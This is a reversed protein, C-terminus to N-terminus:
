LLYVKIRSSKSIPEQIVCTFDEENYLVYKDAMIPVSMRKLFCYNYNKDKKKKTKCSKKCNRKFRCKLQLFFYFYSVPGRKQRKQVVNSQHLSPFPKATVSISSSTQPVLDVIKKKHFLWTQKYVLPSSVPVHWILAKKFHKVCKFIKPM